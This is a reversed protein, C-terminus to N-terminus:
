KPIELCSVWQITWPGPLVYHLEHYARQILFGRPPSVFSAKLSAYQFETKIDSGADSGMQIAFGQFWGPHTKQDSSDVNVM